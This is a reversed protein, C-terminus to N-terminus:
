WATLFKTPLYDDSNRAVKIIFTLHQTAIQRKISPIDIFTIRVTENTIRQDKIEDIDISLIHRICRHLFVELQKLPCSRLAWSDCGWLFLNITITLFILYKRHNNVNAETCFKELEGM